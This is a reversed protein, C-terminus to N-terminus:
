LIIRSWDDGIKELYFLGLGLGRGEGEDEGEDEGDRVIM